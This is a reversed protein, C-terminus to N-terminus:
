IYARASLKSLDIRRWTTLERTTRASLDIRRWISAADSRGSRIRNSGVTAEPELWRAAPRIPRWSALIM